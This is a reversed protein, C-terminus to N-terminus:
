YVINFAFPKPNIKTMLFYGGRERVAAFTFLIFFQSFATVWFVFVANFPNICLYVNPPM